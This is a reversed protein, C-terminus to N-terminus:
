TTPSPSEGPSCGHILVRQPDGGVSAANRQVWRMAMRQHMIGYNGTGEGHGLTTATRHALQKSDLFGFVGMRYDISIVVM